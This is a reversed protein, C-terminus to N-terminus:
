TKILQLVFVESTITTLGRTLRYTKLSVNGADPQKARLSVCVWLVQVLCFRVDNSGNCDENLDSQYMIQDKFFVRINYLWQFVNPNAVSSSIIM